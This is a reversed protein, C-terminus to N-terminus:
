SWWENSQLLIVSDGQRVVLAELHCTVLSGSAQVEIRFTSSRIDVVPLLGQLLNDTLRSDFVSEIPKEERIRQVQRSFEPGGLATLVRNSATNLNIKGNGSWTIEDAVPHDPSLGLFNLAFSSDLPLVPYRAARDNAQSLWDAADLDKGPSLKSFARFLLRNIDGSPYIMANINIRAQEDRTITTVQIGTLDFAEGLAWSDGPGDWPTQDLLLNEFASALGSRAAHRTKIRECSYVTRTRAGLARQGMTMALGMIATIMVLVTILVYGKQQNELPLAYNM